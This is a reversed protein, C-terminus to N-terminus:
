QVERKWNIKFAFQSWLASIFRYIFNNEQPGTFRSASSLLVWGPSRLLSSCCASRQSSKGSWTVFIWKEGFSHLFNIEKKAQRNPVRSPLRTGSSSLVCSLLLNWSNELCLRWLLPHSIDIWKFTWKGQQQTVSNIRWCRWRYAFLCRFRCLNWHLAEMGDVMSRCAFHIKEPTILM